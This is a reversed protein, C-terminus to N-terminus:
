IYLFSIFILLILYKGLPFSFLYNNDIMSLALDQIWIKITRNRCFELLSM